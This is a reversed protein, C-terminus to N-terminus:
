FPNMRNLLKHRRVGHHWVAALAHLVALGLLLNGGVQHIGALGTDMFRPLPVNLAPVTMAFIRVQLGMRSAVLWGVLPVAILLVYLTAHVVRAVRAALLAIARHPPPVPQVARAAIRAVTLALVSLGFAFHLLPPDQRITPGSESLTYDVVVAIATSWHIAIMLASYRPVPNAGPEATQNNM